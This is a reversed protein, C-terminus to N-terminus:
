MHSQQQQQRLSTHFRDFLTIASGCLKMRLLLYLDYHMSEPTSILRLYTRTEGTLNSQKTKLLVHKDTQLRGRAYQVRVRRIQRANGLLIDHIITQLQLCYHGFFQMYASQIRMIGRSQFKRVFWHGMSARSTELDISSFGSIGIFQDNLMVAFLMSRNEHRQRIAETIYSKADAVTRISDVWFFLPRFQQRNDDVARFYANTHQLALPELQVRENDSLQWASAAACLESRSNM